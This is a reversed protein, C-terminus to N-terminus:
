QISIKLKQEFTEGTVRLIYVGPNLKSVDVVHNFINEGEYFSVPAGILQGSVSYCSIQINQAQTCDGHLYLYDHAPVPYVTLERIGDVAPIGSVYEKTTFNRIESWPGSEGARTAAIRWYYKHEYKLNTLSHAAGTINEVSFIPNEFTSLTDVQIKYATAGSVNQWTLTIGTPIGTADNAPSILLPAKMIILGPISSFWEIGAPTAIWINGKMDSAIHNIQNNILGEDETYKYMDTGALISLGQTTGFWVNDNDDIYISIVNTDVLGSDLKFQNWGEKALNTLHQSAGANTGYWQIEDKIAISQVVDSNIYSWVQGYASAGTFGDVADYRVRAIGKGATSIYAQSDPAYSQIDTIAYDNIKFNNQDVDKLIFLTDWTSGGFLSIATDTAVWRNHM